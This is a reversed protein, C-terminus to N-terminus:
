SNLISDLEKDVNYMDTNFNCNKIDAILCDIKKNNEAMKINLLKRNVLAKKLETKKYNYDREYADLEGYM